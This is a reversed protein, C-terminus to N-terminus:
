QNLELERMYMGFLWDLFALSNEDSDKAWRAVSEYDLVDECDRLVSAKISVFDLAELDDELSEARVDLYDIFNMESSIFSQWVFDESTLDTYLLENDDLMQMFLEKYNVSFSERIAKALAVHKINNM